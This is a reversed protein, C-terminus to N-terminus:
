LPNTRAAAPPRGKPSKPIAPDLSDWPQASAVWVDAMPKFWSPDDLTGAKIGIFESRGSSSAFLQSGCELCFARTAENGSECIVKHFKPQGSAIRLSQAPVIVTPSYPGGSAKQCDRCHCNVMAVPQASCSYRIAGCLCGGSFGATPDM